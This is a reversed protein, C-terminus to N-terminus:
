QVHRNRNPKMVIVQPERSWMKQRGKRLMDRKAVFQARAIKTCTKREITMRFSCNIKRYSRVPRAAIESPEVQM